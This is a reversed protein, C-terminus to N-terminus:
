YVRLARQLIEMRCRAREMGVSFSFASFHLATQVMGVMGVMGIMGGLGLMGATRESGSDILPSHM